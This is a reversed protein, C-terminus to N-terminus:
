NNETVDSINLHKNEIYPFVIVTAFIWFVGLVFSIALVRASDSQRLMTPPPSLTVATLLAPTESLIEYIEVPPPANRSTRSPFISGPIEANSLYFFM